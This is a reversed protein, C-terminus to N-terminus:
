RRDNRFRDFSSYGQPNEREEADFAMRIKDVDVLLTIFEEEVNKSLKFHKCIRSDFKLCM